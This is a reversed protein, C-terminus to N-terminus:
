FYCNNGRRRMFRGKGRRVGGEDDDDCRRRRRM